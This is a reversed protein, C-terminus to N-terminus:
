KLCSDWPKNYSLWLWRNSPPSLGVRLWWTSLPSRPELWCWYTASLTDEAQKELGQLLLYVGSMGCVITLCTRLAPRESFIMWALAAILLPETALIVSATAASTMRLGPICAGYALGPELIGSLSARVAARNFPITQGTALVFLWLVAVSAGLQLAFLTFPPIEALAAKTMVMALGWCGAALVLAVIATGRYPHSRTATPEPSAILPAGKM